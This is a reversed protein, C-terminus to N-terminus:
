RGGIRRSLADTFLDVLAQHYKDRGGPIPLDDSNHISITFDDPGRLVIMTCETIKRKGLGRRISFVLIGPTSQVLDLKTVSVVHSTSPIYARHFANISSTCDKKCKGVRGLRKKVLSCLALIVTTPSKPKVNM